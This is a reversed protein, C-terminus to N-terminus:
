NTGILFDTIAAYIVTTALLYANVKASVQLIITINGRLLTKAYEAEECAKNVRLM